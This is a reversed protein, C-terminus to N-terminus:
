PTEAAEPTARGYLVTLESLRDSIAPTLATGTFRWRWNGSPRGPLNMRAKTGLGLVDQLPVIATDAVSSIIARIFDWHIETGDSALYRSCFDRERKIEEKTRTSDGEGTSTWWGVTTDNDHTGTYAALNRSYNHPRFGAEHPGAGFAFQLIAMGPLQFQQRLSEVEPTIFGLNEAVISLGGLADRLTELLKAGPGKVWRGREATADGGPIEWSAEFGRFHDLRVVDVLALTSRLREVWWAYGSRELVDWRYLPNGWLQGTASFYDPPVGAVFAPSGDAALKFFESHAWVDASDHAVFIPVDGMIRVGRKHCYERLDAWQRFFLYQRFKQSAVAHAAEKRWRAVAGPERRAAGAEWRPWASGGHAAKLAMFLSFDELWTAQEHCFREFAQRNKPSGRKDFCEFAKELVPEKFAMVAGYEVQDEPFLPARALDGKGLLGEEALEALDILLPNGAFASFCQYPSDGYGTPGLPLVQWIGQHTGALFDVFRRAEAGIEGIGFRGPLSTPHLLVGCV